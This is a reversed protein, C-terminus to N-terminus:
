GKSGMLAIIKNTKETAYKNMNYLSIALGASFWWYIEYLDMGFIGLVLRVIIFLLVSKTVAEM